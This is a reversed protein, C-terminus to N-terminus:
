RQRMWYLGPRYPQPVRALNESLREWHDPGFENVELRRMAERVADADDTLCAIATPFFDSWYPTTPLYPTTPSDQYVAVTPLRDGTQLHPGRIRDLPEPLIKIVPWADGAYKSMSASVAILYPKVSVVVAPNIDGQSCKQRLTGVDGWLAFAQAAFLVASFLGVGWASDPAAILFVTPVAVALALRLLRPVTYRPYCRIWTIFNFGFRGPTTAYTEMNIFKLGNSLTM